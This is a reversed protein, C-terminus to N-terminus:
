PKFVRDRHYACYAPTPWSRHDPPKLLRRDPNILRFAAEPLGRSTVLIPYDPPPGLSILGRDFMWHVTGCLAIGNRVSDPGHDAVPRIHAAQVEARGGGNVIKLGSVACTAAYAAQVRRAFAADRVPRSLVQELRPREFPQIPEALGPPMTQGLGTSAAMAAGAPELERAFGAAVIEEFEIESLSRVARGFAGKSTAGDGRQLQREYCHQGERFPVPRGFEVYSDPEILAYYHDSKAPDREVGLVRAVAVYAQRGTRGLDGLGTRGPEYYVVFDGVAEEVQRLYPRPFHYREEPLDDYLSVSKHTLVAKM